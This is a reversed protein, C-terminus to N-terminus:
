LSLFFQCIMKFINEEDGVDWLKAPVANQLGTDYKPCSHTTFQRLMTLTTHM